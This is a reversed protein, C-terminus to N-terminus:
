VALALLGGAMVLNAQVATRVIVSILVGVSCLCLVLPVPCILLYLASFPHFAGIALGVAVAVVLIWLWPLGKLLAGLAKARLIDGRDIPLTLLMDLTAREKERVVSAAARFAVGVSFCFVFLGYLGRLFVGVPRSAIRIGDVLSRAQNVLDHLVDLFLVFLMLTLLVAGLLRMEPVLAVPRGGTYREKWLLAQDQVPPLPPLLLPRTTAGESAPMPIASKLSPQ